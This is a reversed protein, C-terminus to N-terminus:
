ELLWLMLSQPDSDLKGLVRYASDALISSELALERVVKYPVRYSSHIFHIGSVDNVIFGVHCDLGVIYLGPGIERIKDVFGEISRNSFRWVSAPSILSRIMLESPEQALRIRDLKVGADRLVTTVFYGCAITGEGPIQTTGNFSWSTGYWYPIIGYVIEDRISQSATTLFLEREYTNSIEKLCVRLSDRFVLAGELVEAYTSNGVPKFVEGLSPRLQLVM